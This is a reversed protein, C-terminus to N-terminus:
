SGTENCLQASGWGLAICGMGLDQRSLPIALAHIILLIGVGGHFPLRFVTGLLFGGAFLVWWFMNRRPHRSHCTHIGFSPWRQVEEVTQTEM